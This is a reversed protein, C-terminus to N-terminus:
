VHTVQALDSECVVIADADDVPAEAWAVWETGDHYVGAHFESGSSVKDEQALVAALDRRLGAEIMQCADAIHQQRRHALQAAAAAIDTDTPDEGDHGTVETWDVSLWYGCGHQQSYEMIQGGQGAGADLTVPCDVVASVGQECQPCRDYPRDAWVVVRTLPEGTIIDRATLADAQTHPPLPIERVNETNM